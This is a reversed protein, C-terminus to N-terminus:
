SRITQLKLGIAVVDREVVVNMGDDAVVPGGEARRVPTLKTPLRRM